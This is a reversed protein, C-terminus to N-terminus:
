VQWLEIYLILVGPNDYHEYEEFDFAAGFRDPSKKLALM